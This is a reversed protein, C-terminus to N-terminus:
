SRVERRRLRLLAVLALWELGGTTSCGILGQGAFRKDVNRVTIQVPPSKDSTNGAADRADAELVHM